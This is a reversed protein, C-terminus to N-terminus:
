PHAMKDDSLFYETFKGDGETFIKANVNVVNLLKPIGLM